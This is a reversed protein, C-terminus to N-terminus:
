RNPVLDVLTSLLRLWNPQRRIISRSYSNFALPAVSASAVKATKKRYSRVTAKWKRKLDQCETLVESLFKQGPCSDFCENQGYGEPNTGPGPRLDHVRQM